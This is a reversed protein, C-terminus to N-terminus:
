QVAKPLCRRRSPKAMDSIMIADAQDPALDPQFDAVLAQEVRGLIEVLGHLEVSPDDIEKFSGM